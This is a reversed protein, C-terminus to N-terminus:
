NLNEIVGAVNQNNVITKLFVPRAAALVVAWTHSALISGWAGRSTDFFVTM